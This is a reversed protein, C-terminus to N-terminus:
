QRGLVFVPIKRKKLMQIKDFGLVNNLDFVISKDKFFIKFTKKSSIEKHKVALIKIDFKM